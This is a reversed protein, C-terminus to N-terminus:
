RLIRGADTGISTKRLRLGAIVKGSVEGFSCDNHGPIDPKNLKGILNKQEPM